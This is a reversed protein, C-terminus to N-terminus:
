KKKNQVDSRKPVKIEWEYIMDQTARINPANPALRIYRNMEVVATEFDGVESLVLARNYHGEPWWPAIELGGEYFEAADGFRKERVSIEAQVKFRRVDESISPKTAANRYSQLAQEFTSEDNELAEDTVTQQLVYVADAAQAGLKEPINMLYMTKEQGYQISLRGKKYTVKTIDRLRLHTSQGNKRIFVIQRTTVIVTSLYTNPGAGNFTVNNSPLDKLVTRADSTAMNKLASKGPTHACGTSGFVFVVLLLLYPTAVHKPKM